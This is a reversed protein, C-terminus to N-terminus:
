VRRQNAGASGIFARGSELVPMIYGHFGCACMLKLLKDLMQCWVVALHDVDVAADALNVPQVPFQLLLGEDVGGTGDAPLFEVVVSVVVAFIALPDIAIAGSEPNGVVGRSGGDGDGSEILGGVRQEVDGGILEGGGPLFGGGDGCASDPLLFTKCDPYVLFSLLIGIITEESDFM